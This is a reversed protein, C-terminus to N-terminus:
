RALKLVIYARSGVDLGMCQAFRTARERVLYLERYLRLRAVEEGSLCASARELEIEAVKELVDFVDEVHRALVAHMDHPTARREDVFGRRARFAYVEVRV